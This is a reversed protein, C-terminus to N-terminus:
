SYRTSYTYAYVEVENSHWKRAVQDNNKHVVIADPQLIVRVYDEYVSEFITMLEVGSLM